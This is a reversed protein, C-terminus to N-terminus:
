SRKSNQSSAFFWPVLMGTRSRYANWEAHRSMSKEKMLMNPLFLQLWVWALVVKPAWHPVMAAFGGYVLMEGTYNPHRVYAFPGDCILGKRIRLTATKYCDSIMMLVVGIIYIVIACCCRELSPEPAARSILLYPALWYPGLVLVFSSIQCLFTTKIEWKPDPIIFHKLLWIIGYSGHAATYFFASPSYNDFYWMLLLCFPLTGGKQANIIVWHPIFRPGPPIRYALFDNIASQLEFIKM